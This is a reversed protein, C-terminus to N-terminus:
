EMSAWKGRIGPLSTAHLTEVEVAGFLPGQAARHRKTRGEFPRPWCRQVGFCRGSEHCGDGTTMCSQRERTLKWSHRKTSKKYFDSSIVTFRLTNGTENRRREIFPAKKGRNVAQSAIFRTVGEFGENGPLPPSKDRRSPRWLGLCLGQAARHRKARGDFPRAQMAIEFFLANLFDQVVFFSNATTKSNQM